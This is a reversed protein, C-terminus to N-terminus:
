TKGLGREQHEKYIIKLTNGCTKCCARESLANNLLSLDMIIYSNRNGELDIKEEDFDIDEEPLIIKRRKETVSDKWLTSQNYWSGKSSIALKKKWENTFAKFKKKNPTRRKRKHSPNKNKDM